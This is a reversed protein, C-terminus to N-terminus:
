PLKNRPLALLRTSFGSLWFYKKVLPSQVRIIYIHTDATTVTLLGNYRVDTHTRCINIRGSLLLQGASKVHMLKLKRNEGESVCVGTSNTEQAHTQRPLQLM